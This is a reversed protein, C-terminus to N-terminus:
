FSIMKYGVVISHGHQCKKHYYYNSPLVLNYQTATTGAASYNSVQTLPMIIFYACNAEDLSPIQVQNASSM